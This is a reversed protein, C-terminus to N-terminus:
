RVGGTEIRNAREERSGCFFDRSKRFKAAGTPIKKKQAASPIAPARRSYVERQKM